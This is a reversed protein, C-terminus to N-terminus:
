GPSTGAAWNPRTPRAAAAGRPGAATRRGAGPTSRRLGPLVRRGRADLRGAAALEAGVAALQERVAGLAEVLHYKPLERLGAFMRTRKLAARVLRGRLRSRERAAAVLREVQAEAERAAKSFQRDPALAPDDLRLYNALVGLIHTPDDSWRPM